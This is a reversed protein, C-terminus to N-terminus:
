EDRYICRRFQWEDLDSGNALDEDSFWAFIDSSDEDGHDQQVPLKDEDLM